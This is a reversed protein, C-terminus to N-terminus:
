IAVKSNVYNESIDRNAKCIWVMKLPKLRKADPNKNIGPFESTVSM